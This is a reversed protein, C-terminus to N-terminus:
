GTRAILSSMADGDMKMDRAKNVRLYRIGRMRPFLLNRPPFRAGGWARGGWERAPLSRGCDCGRTNLKLSLGRRVSAASM